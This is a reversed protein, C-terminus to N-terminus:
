KKLECNMMWQIGFQDEFMGFRAGWFTDQLPMLIKGGSSLAPFLRNITQVDELDLSLRINNGTTTTNGDLTDSMYLLDSGIQLRAHMIQNKHTEPVKMPSDGMRSVQLITGGLCDRYFQLAQECKGSFHLYTVLKM